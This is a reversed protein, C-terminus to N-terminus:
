ISEHTPRQPRNRNNPLPPIGPKQGIHGGLAHSGKPTKPAKPAVKLPSRYPEKPVRLFTPPQGKPLIRDARVGEINQGTRCCAPHLMCIPIRHPRLTAQTMCHLLMLASSRGTRKTTARSYSSFSARAEMGGVFAHRDDSRPMATWNCRRRKIYRDALSFFYREVGGARLCTVPLPSARSRRGHSMWRSREDNPQTLKSTGAAPYLVHGRPSSLHRTPFRTFPAAM